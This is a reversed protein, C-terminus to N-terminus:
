VIFIGCLPIICASYAFIAHAHKKKHIENKPPSILLNKKTHTPFPTFNTRRKQDEEMLPQKEDYTTKWWLNDEMLPQRGDFTTKWWLNDEMLTRGGHCNTRWWLKDEMLPQRGDFSLKIRLIACSLEDKRTKQQLLYTAKMVWRLSRM